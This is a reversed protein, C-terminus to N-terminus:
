SRSWAPWTTRCARWCGASRRCNATPAGRAVDDLRDAQRPRLHGPGPFLSEFQAGCMLEYASFGLSYLDSAPGVAGFQASVLEPAMYKTTGKLLSGEENSARRALGFDGLKVRNQADVLMNSPKVDGHIVGNAHLFHLASLSGALVVRLFDLDIPEGQATQKLSGRMLELILWGRSRVIDYITVINPHQLSALLQAEQWYRALQRPRGPVAPPDAQHGGRAGARPRPRSLGHRFRGSAITDVIEYRPAPEM